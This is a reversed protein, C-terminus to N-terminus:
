WATMGVDVPLLSGTIGSSARGALFAILAAVENTELFRKQAHRAVWQAMIEARTAGHLRQQDAMQAELLPTNMGAPAVANATIGVDAGELAAVRVLGVVGHKAATYACKFPEALTSSTSATVIIRGSGSDVLHPWAHKMALFPGTVMLEQLRVFEALPFESIPAMSQAGANLVVVDLRGFREVAEAVMAATGEDSSVDAHLADGALDVDLVDAGLERLAHSVSSGLGGTAGTVLAVRGTLDTDLIM